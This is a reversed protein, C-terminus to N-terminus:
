RTRDTLAGAAAAVRTQTSIHAWRAAENVSYYPVYHRVRGHPLVANSVNDLIYTEDDVTASLVAHPLDRLTDHVVVIRVQGPGFGLERLTVYKAIAYDECDGSRRLFELPTAWYDSRGWNGRDTKYRWGNIFRNVARLQDLSQTGQQGRIMAQWALAGRHPCADSGGACAKYVPREREVGELVGRWKPLADLSSSRFEITGFLTLPAAAGSKSLTLAVVAVIVAGLYPRM